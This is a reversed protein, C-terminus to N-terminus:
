FASKHTQSAKKLFISAPMGMLAAYGMWYCGQITGYRVSLHKKM